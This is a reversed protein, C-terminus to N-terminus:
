VRSYFPLPDVFPRDLTLVAFQTFTFTAPTGGESFSVYPSVYGTGAELIVPAQSVEGDADVVIQAVGGTGTGEADLISVNYTGPTQGTGGDTVTGYAVSGNGSMALVSYISYGQARFQQVTPSWYFPLANWAATATADGVITNQGLTATISGATTIGPTSFGGQQLQFSWLMSDQIIKWARNILRKARIRSTAPVLETIESQMDIFM